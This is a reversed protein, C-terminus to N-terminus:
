LVFLKEREDEGSILKKERFSLPNGLAITERRSNRGDGGGRAAPCVKELTSFSQARDKGLMEFQFGRSKPGRGGKRHDKGGLNKLARGERGGRVGLRNSINKHPVPKKTIPDVPV